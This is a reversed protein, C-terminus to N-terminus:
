KKLPKWIVKCEARDASFKLDRITRGSIHPTGTMFFIIKPAITLEEVGKMREGITHAFNGVLSNMRAEVANGWNIQRDHIVEWKPFNLYLEYGKRSDWLVTPLFGKLPKGGPNPVSVKQPIFLVTILRTTEDVLGLPPQPTIEFNLYFVMVMAKNERLSSFNLSHHFANLIETLTMTLQM